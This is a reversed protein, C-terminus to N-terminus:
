QKVPYPYATTTATVPDLTLGLFSGREQGRFVVTLADCTGNPYFTVNVEDQGQEVPPEDGLQATVMAVRPSLETTRLTLEANADNNSSAAQTIWYLQKNMDLHLVAPKQYSVAQYRAYQCTTGLSRAAASVLSANYSRVFSPAAVAMFVLLVFVAMGLEILSFGAAGVRRGAVAPDFCIVSITM